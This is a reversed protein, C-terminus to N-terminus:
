CLHCWPEAYKTHQTLLHDHEDREDVFTISDGCPECFREQTGDEHTIVGVLDDFEAHPEM